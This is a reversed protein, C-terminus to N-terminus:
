AEDSPIGSETGTELLTDSLEKEILENRRTIFEEFNGFSLEVNPIYHRKMYQMRARDDDFQSTLWDELDKNSKEENVLGELLQLNGIYNCNSLYFDHKSDPIGRKSLERRSKFFSRPFIHDQHFRNRFDLEPYLLALVSFTYGKGYKHLLLNDVDDKSFLISKSKGRFEEVIREFPFDTQGENIINRIPRLVSDPQGGFVRKLLSRILWEKISRRDERYRRSLPFKEPNGSIHIYHAVPIVAYNSTLTKWNYGLSDMTSVAIRLAKTIHDWNKEVERMNQANFNDVRFRIDKFNSLVLCAKLVFDKNFDFEEGIDNLSDVFEHIEERADREKWQATAISLLLDSYSLITGGSNVRIFINLVKNLDQDTELYYNIIRKKNVVEHLKFLCDGAFKSQSLGNDVIYDYLEKPSEQDFELIKGVEFWYEAEDREEAEEETLFQFDYKVDFEDSESLINLYLRRRPFADDNDWRKWPKKYAYTGRLGLYLATLRQQGDLIGVIDKEAFLDAKPNHTNDREHYDKIFGYFQYERTMSGPVDWFLFSGIPYDRMLSDFLNQIQEVDWVLERQIAPLYYKGNYINEIAERITLPTQFAMRIGGGM